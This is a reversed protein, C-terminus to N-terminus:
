FGGLFSLEIGNELVRSVKANVLYGPKVNQITLDKSNLPRQTSEKNVMEVKIIKSSGMVNKVIVQVLQGIQLHETNQDISLFGQSKDKLGLNIM